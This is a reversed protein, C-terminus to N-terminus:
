FWSEEWVARRGKLRFKLSQVEETLSGHGRCRSSPVTGTGRISVACRTGERHRLKRVQSTPISADVNCPQTCLGPNPGGPSSQPGRAHGRLATQTGGRRPFGPDTRDTPLLKRPNRLPRTRAQSRWGWHRAWPFAM